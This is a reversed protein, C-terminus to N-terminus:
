KAKAKKFLRYTDHEENHKVGWASAGNKFIDNKAKDTAFWPINLSKTDIDKDGLGLGPNAKAILSLLRTAAKHLAAVSGAGSDQLEAERPVRAM